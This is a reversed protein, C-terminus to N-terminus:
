AKYEKRKVGASNKESRLCWRIPFGIPFCGLAGRLFFSLEDDVTWGAGVLLFKVGLNEALSEL